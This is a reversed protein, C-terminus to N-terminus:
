QRAKIRIRGCSVNNDEKLEAVNGGPDIQACVYYEGERTDAPIGGSIAYDKSGNPALDVTNSRRGGKLLVDEVFEEGYIAFGPPVQEDTSLVLDVRYSHQPDLQGSSGPAPATGINKAILRIQRGIDEGAVAESPCSLEVILDPLEDTQSIRHRVNPQPILFFCLLSLFPLWTMRLKM